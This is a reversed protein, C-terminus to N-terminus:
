EGEDQASRPPEPNGQPQPKLKLLPNEPLPQPNPPLDDRSRKQWDSDWPLRVDDRSKKFEALESQQGGSKTQEDDGSM